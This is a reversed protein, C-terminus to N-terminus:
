NLEMWAKLVPKIGVPAQMRKMWNNKIHKELNARIEALTTIGGTSKGGKEGSKNVWWGHAAVTRPLPLGLAMLMAPWYVTHFRNIGKGICHIRTPANVWYRQYKESDDRLDLATIYNALADYWVYMVQDDDGPVTIGWDGARRVQTGDCAYQPPVGVRMGDVECIWTLGDDTVLQVRDFRVHRDTCM